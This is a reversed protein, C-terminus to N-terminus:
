FLEKKVYSGESIKKKGEETLVYSFVLYQHECHYRDIEVSGVEKSYIDEYIILTKPNEYIIDKGLTKPYKEIIRLIKADCPIKISFTYKGYEREVGTQMRKKLVDKLLM